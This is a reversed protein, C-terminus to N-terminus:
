ETCGSSVQERVPIKSATICLWNVFHTLALYERGVCFLSLGLCQSINICFRIISKNLFSVTTWMSCVYGDVSCEFNFVNTKFGPELLSTDKEEKEEKEKTEPRWATTGILCFGLIWYITSFLLSSLASQRLQCEGDQSIELSVIIHRLTPRLHKKRRFLIRSVVLGLNFNFLM